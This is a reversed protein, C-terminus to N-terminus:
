RALRMALALAFLERTDDDDDILLVRVGVLPEKSNM